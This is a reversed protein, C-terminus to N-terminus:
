DLVKTDISASNLVQEVLDLQEHLIILRPIFSTWKRFIVTAQNGCFAVGKLKRKWALNSNDDKVRYYAITNSEIKYTAVFPVQNRAERVCKAAIKNCNKYAYNKNWSILYNHIKPFFYFIISFLIFTITYIEINIWAPCWDPKNFIVFLCLTFGVFSLTIGVIRLIPMVKTVFTNKYWRDSYSHHQSLLIKYIEQEAQDILLTDVKTIIEM